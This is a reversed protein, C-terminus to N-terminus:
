AKMSYLRIDVNSDCQFNIVRCSPIHLIFKKPFKPTYTIAIVLVKYKQVQKKMKKLITTTLYQIRNIKQIPLTRFKYYFYLLIRLVVAM